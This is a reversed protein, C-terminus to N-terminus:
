ELIRLYGARVFKKKLKIEEYGPRNEIPQYTLDQSELYESIPNLGLKKRRTDINKEDIIPYLKCTKEGNKTQCIIQTGYLQLHYERSLHRDILKATNIKNAENKCSKEIMLPLYKGMYKTGPFSHQIVFFIADGGEIGVESYGSWGKEEILQVVKEIRKKLAENDFPPLAGLKYTYKFTRFQQDEIYIKWLQVGLNPNSMTPYRNKYQDELRANISTWLQTNTRLNTLDTDLYAEEALHGREIADLLYKKSSDLSGNKAFECSKQFYVHALSDTTITFAVGQFAIFLCYTLFHKLKMKKLKGLARIHIM